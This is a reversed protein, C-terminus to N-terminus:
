GRRRRSVWVIIGGVLVAGPILCVTGIAILAIANQSPPVILRQTIQRPTLTILDEQRTTWDVANLILDRNGYQNIGANALFDSDGFVVLRAGSLGNEAAVALAVPGIRDEDDAEPNGENISDINTEAWSQDSTLILDTHFVNETEPNVITVSRAIPFLTILERRSLDNTIEQSGYSVSAAYLGGLSNVVQPEIVIDDSLGIGWVETLYANIPDNKSTFETQVSADQAVILAGGGEVYSRILATEQESVPQIPGAIVIAAADDPIVPNLLLNLSAVQYNKNELGFRLTSLSADGTEDVNYEGHGTLFYVTKNNPNLLAVLASTFEQESIISVKQSNEGLSFVIMGGAVFGAQEAAIPNLLPDIIEYVLKGKAYFKYDELLEKVRTQNPNDGSYFARAVVPEDLAAIEELTLVTEPTLTREQDATLDWRLGWTQANQYVLYNIVAVSAVFAVFLLVANSGYRAQRGAVIQRARDPDFYVFLALGILILGTGVQFYLNFERQVFWYGATLLAAFGAVSIAINSLSRNNNSM